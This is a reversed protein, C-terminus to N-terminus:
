EEYKMGERIQPDFLSYLLEAIFNGGFVLISSFLTVALLLNADGHLGAHTAANGLGPYSFVQEALVSGSFLENIANFQLTVAPLIINRIGHRRIATLRNEGRARAFIMYDSNLIDIMKERTHLTIKSIGTLSLTFAPLILHYIREGVTVEEALKGIPASFGIPFWGLKVSFLVIFLLGLWFLPASALLLSFSKIVRDLWSERWIGSVIGLVFGLIGSFIWATGLLLLTTKVRSTIVTRVPQNYVISQGFEGHCANQLWLLYREAPPKDLGWTKEIVAREELTVARKTYAEVPDNPSNLVLIFAILTVALLLFIFKAASLAGRAAIRLLVRKNM